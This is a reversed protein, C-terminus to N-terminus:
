LLEIFEQNRDPISDLELSPSLEIGLEEELHHRLEEQKYLVQYLRSKKGLRHFKLIQTKLKSSLESYLGRLFTTTDIHHEKPIEIKFSVYDDQRYGDVARIFGPHNMLCEELLKYTSHNSFRYVLELVTTKKTSLYANILYTNICYRSMERQTSVNLEKVKPTLPLTNLAPLIYLTTRNRLESCLTFEKEGVQNIHNIAYTVERDEFPIKFAGYKTIRYFDNITISTIDKEITDSYEIETIVGETELKLTSSNLPSLIVKKGNVEKVLKM